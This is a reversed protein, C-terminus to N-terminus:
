AAGYTFKKNLALQNPYHDVSGLNEKTSAYLNALEIITPLRWGDHNRTRLNEADTKADYWNLCKNLDTHSDTRAWMLGSDPDSITGDRNGQLNLHSKPPQPPMYAEAEFTKEHVYSNFPKESQAWVSSILCFYISSLLTFIFIQISNM